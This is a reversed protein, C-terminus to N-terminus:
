NIQSVNWDFDVLLAAHDSLADRRSGADTHQGWQYSAHQIRESLARNAFAQDLRYGNGANPSYWTYTHANPRFIRYVDRWGAQELGPIWDTEYRHFAAPNGDIPPVGCNTDGGIITPGGRWRQAFATVRAFYEQKRRTVHNPAHLICFNPGVEPRVLLWRTAEPRQRRLSIRRLPTNAAAFVANAALNEPSTNQLQFPWGLDALLHALEISAPTARFECLGILDPQWAAIQEAIQHNRKGGGARINWFLARM